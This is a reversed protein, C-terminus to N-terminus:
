IDKSEKERVWEGAPEVLEYPLWTDISSGMMEFQVRYNRKRKSFGTIRGNLEFLPGSIIKVRDNIQVAESVDLIGKQSLAWEAYERDEGTLLGGGEKRELIRFATEGRHLEAVDKGAPVFIFVYGKLLVDQVLKQAGSGGARKMRLLPFALCDENLRNLEHALTIESNTMCFLCYADFGTERLRRESERCRDDFVWRGVESM